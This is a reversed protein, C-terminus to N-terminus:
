YLYLFPVLRLGHGLVLGLAALLGGVIGRNIWKSKATNAAIALKISTAHRLATLAMMRAVIVVEQSDAVGGVLWVAPDSGNMGYDQPKLAMAFCITAFLFALSAYAQLSFVLLQTNATVPMLGLFAGAVGLASIPLLVQAKVEQMKKTDIADSFRKEAQDLIAKAMPLRIQAREIDEATFSVFMPETM